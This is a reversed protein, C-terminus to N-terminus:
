APAFAAARPRIELSQQPGHPGPSVFHEHLLRAAATLAPEPCAVTMGGSSVVTGLVAVRHGALLALLAPLLGPWANLGSGVLSLTGVPGSWDAESLRFAGPVSPRATRLHEADRRRVLLSFAVGSPDPAMSTVDADIGARALTRLLRAGAVPSSARVACHRYGRRFGVGALVAAEPPVGDPRRRAPHVDYRDARLAAALEVGAAGRAPRVGIVPVDGAMLAARAGAVTRPDLDGASGGTSVGPGGSDPAGLWRARVGSERLLAFHGTIERTLPVILAIDTDDGRDRHVHRVAETVWAGDTRDAPAYGHVIVGM